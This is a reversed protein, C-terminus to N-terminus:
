LAADYNFSSAKSRIEAAASDTAKKQDLYDKVLKTLDELKTSYAQNISDRYLKSSDAIYKVTPEYIRSFELDSAKFIRNTEEAILQAGNLLEVTQIIAIRRALQSWFFEADDQLESDGLLQVFATPIWISCYQEWKEDNKVLDEFNKPAFPSPICGRTKLQLFGESSILNYARKYLSEAVEAPSYSMPYTQIKVSATTSQDTSSSSSAESRELIVKTTPLLGIAVDAGLSLSGEEDTPSTKETVVCARVFVTMDLVLKELTKKDTLRTSVDQEGRRLDKNIVEQLSSFGDDTKLGDTLKSSCQSFDINSLLDAFNLNEVKSCYLLMETLDPFPATDGECAPSGSCGAGTKFKKSEYLDYLSIESDDGSYKAVFREMCSTMLRGLIRDSLRTSQLAKSYMETLTVTESSRWTAYPHILGSLEKFELPYENSCYTLLEYYTPASRGEHVYGGELIGAATVHGYSDTTREIKTCLGTKKILEIIITHQFQGSIGEGMESSEGLGLLANLPVTTFRSSLQNYARDSKISGNLPSIFEVRMMETASATAANAPIESADSPVNIEGAVAGSSVLLALAARLFIKTKM